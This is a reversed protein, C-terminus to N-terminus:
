KVNGWEELDLELFTLTSGDGLVIRWVDTRRTSTNADFHGPSAAAAAADVAAAAANAVAVAAAAAAAAAAANDAAAAAANIFGVVRCDFAADLSGVLSRFLLTERYSEVHVVPHILAQKVNGLFHLGFLSALM